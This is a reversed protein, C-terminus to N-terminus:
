TGVITFSIGIYFLHEPSFALIFSGIIMLIGGLFISRRFGLIKDAFFGGVFTLTYAFAQIAGYKLNSEKGGVHLREFMFLILMGRMGYFSFREWMEALCLYLLQKPYIGKFNQIKAVGRNYETDEISSQIESPLGDDLIEEM